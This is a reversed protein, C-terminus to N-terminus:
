PYYYSTCDIFRDPDTPDGITPAIPKEWWGCAPYLRHNNNVMELYDMTVSPVQSRGQRDRVSYYFDHFTMYKIHQHCQEETDAIGEITGEEANLIYYRHTEIDQAIFYM